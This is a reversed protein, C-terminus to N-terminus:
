IYAKPNTPDHALSDLYYKRAKGSSRKNLYYCGLTFYCRGARRRVARLLGPDRQTGEMKSFKELYEIIAEYHRTEEKDLKGRYVNYVSLPEDIYGVENGAMVRMWMDTDEARELGEDFYGVRDFCAKRILVTGTWPFENNIFLLKCCLSNFLYVNGYQASIAPAMRPITRRERHHPFFGKDTESRKVYHDSFVLSLLPHEKMVRVRHELSEPLFVDDADLFAMYGGRASRIGTNRARARGQNGQYVYRILGRRRYTELIERTNDTSGDDVVIIEFDKYTQGLVSEVAETIYGACNYAPIIVSTEPGANSM